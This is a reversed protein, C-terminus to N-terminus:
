KKQVVVEAPEDLIVLGQASNASIVLQELWARNPAHRHQDTYAFSMTVAENLWLAERTVSGDALDVTFLFSEGRRLKSVIVMQLHSLTRDDIPVGQGSQGYNLYGM